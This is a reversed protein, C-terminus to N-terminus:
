AAVFSVESWTVSTDASDGRLGHKTLTAFDEVEQPAIVEAGDLKVSVSTGALVMEVLSGDASVQGAASTAIATTTGGVVKVLYLRFDAGGVRFLLAIHNRADQVRAAIGGVHTSVNGIVARLTGDAAGADAIALSRISGGNYKAAGGSIAWTSSNTTVDSVLWPKGDDTAALGIVDARQFLDVFGPPIAQGVSRDRVLPFVGNMIRLGTSSSVGRDARVMAPDYDIFAAAHNFENRIKDIYGDGIRPDVVRGEEGTGVIRIGVGATAGLNTLVPQEISNRYGSLIVDRADTNTSPRRSVIAVRRAVSDHADGELYIGAGHQIAQFSVSINELIIRRSTKVWAAANSSDEGSSPYRDDLSIVGRITGDACGLVELVGQCNRASLNAADLGDIHKFVFAEGNNTADWAQCDTVKMGKTRWADDWISPADSGIRGTYLYILHPPQGTDVGSGYAKRYSGRVGTIYGDLYPGGAVGCWVDKVLVDEIRAGSIRAPPAAGSIDDRILVGAWIDQAYIRRVTLRHATPHVKIGAYTNFTAHGTMDLGEGYLGVDEITVGPSSIGFIPMPKRIQKLRTLTSGAGFVRVGAPVDVTGAILFFASSSDLAPLYLDMGRTSAYEAADLLASRNQEGTRNQGFGFESANVSGRGLSRELEGVTPGVIAPWREISGDWYSLSNPRLTSHSANPEGDWSAPGVEGDFFAGDYIGEVVSVGKFIVHTEPGAGTGSAYAALNIPGDARADDRTVAFLYENGATMAPLQGNNAFAGLGTSAITLRGDTLAKIWLLVTYPKGKQVPGFNMHRIGGNAGNARMEIGEPHRGWTPNGSHIQWGSSTQALQISPSSGAAGAWEYVYTDDDATDGSFSDGLVTSNELILDSAYIIDGQTVEGGRGIFMTISNAGNPIVLGNVVITSTEGASLNVTTAKEALATTDTGASATARLFVRYSGDATPTLTAKAVWTQGPLVPPRENDALRAHSSNATTTTTLIYRNNAPDMQVSTANHNQLSSKGGARAQPNHFYNRRLEVYTSRLVSPSADAAGTWSFEQVSDNPTSGDFYDGVTPFEEIQAMTADWTAGTPFAVVGAGTSTVVDLRVNTTGAPSTVGEIILRTWTNAAIVQGQGVVSGTNTGSADYFQLRLVLRQAVSTRTWIAASYVTNAKIGIPRNSSARGDVTLSANPNDGAASTNGKSYTRRYYAGGTPGGATPRSGSSEGGTGIAAQSWGLSDQAVAPNPVLNRRRERVTNDPAKGRPNPLINKFSGERMMLGPQADGRVQNPAILSVPQGAIGQPGQPIGFSLTTEHDLPNTDTVTAQAGPPLTSVAGVTVKHAPGQIGPVQVQIVEPSQPVSIVINATM